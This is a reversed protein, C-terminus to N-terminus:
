ARLLGKSAAQRSSRTPAPSESQKEAINVSSEWLKVKKRKFDYDPFQLIRALRAQLLADEATLKAKEYTEVVRGWMEAPPCDLIRTAKADGIGPCGPYHDIRDGVLTQYMHFSHGEAETISVLADRDPRYLRGPIQQLDKDSSVMIWDKTRKPNTAMIGLIDDAELYPASRVVYNERLFARLANYVLPKRFDTRNDKYSPDLKKRFNREDSLAVVIGDAELKEQLERLMKEILGVAETSDSHLTHIGDGWDINRELVTSVKYCYEDGDVILWTPKNSQNTSAM